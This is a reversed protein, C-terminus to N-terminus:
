RGSRFYKHLTNSGQTRPRDQFEMHLIQSDRDRNIFIIYTRNDVTIKNYGAEADWYIHWTHDKPEGKCPNITLVKANTFPRQTFAWTECEPGATNTREESGEYIWVGGKPSKILRTYEDAMDQYPPSLFLTVVLMFTNAYLTLMLM